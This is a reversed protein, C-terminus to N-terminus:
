SGSVTVDMRADVVIFKNPDSFHVRFVRDRSMGLREFKVRAFRNGTRGVTSWIENSWTFGGDDSFQLMVKPESGVQDVYQNNNTGVPLLGVGREMDIELRRYLVRKRDAHQHSCTRVRRIIQGNDTYTDLDWQYINPTSYDGVYIKGQWLTNCIARHHHHKGTVHNYNSREHWLQTTLDYVFTKDGSIFNFIIFIHSEQIYSFVICDSIDSMQNLAYDIAPTSIKTPIYGSAMWISGYGQKGSGVWFISNHFTAVSYQGATGMNIFGTNVRAFPTNQDGTVYWIEISQSGILWIESNITQINLIPDPSIEATAYNLTDWTDADDFEGSYIFRTGSFYTINTNQVFRGNISIISTGPRYNPDSIVNFTNTATNFLYGSIGDVLQVYSGTTNIVEAFSVRGSLSNLTGLEVVTSSSTIEKLKDGIVLLFREKATTFMGRCGGNIGGSNLILNLGPTPILASPSKSTANNLEVYFNMLEQGDITVGRGANYGIGIIDCRM